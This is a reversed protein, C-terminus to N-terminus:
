NKKLKETNRLGFKRINGCNKCHYLVYKNKTRITCTEGPILISLCKKCYLAKQKKTLLVNSKDRTRLAIKIYRNALKINENFMKISEEFLESINKIAIKQMKEKEKKKRSKKKELKKVM